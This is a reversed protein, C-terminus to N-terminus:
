AYNPQFNKCVRIPNSGENIFVIENWEELTGEYYVDKITIIDFANEDVFKLSRPLYLKELGSGSFAYRNIRTLNRPTKFIKLAFCDSFASDTIEAISDPLNVETLSSCTMFTPLYRINGYFTAKVLKSFNDLVFYGDNINKFNIIIEETYEKLGRLDMSHIVPGEVNIIFRFLKDTGVGHLFWSNFYNFGGEGYLEITYLSDPINIFLDKIKLTGEVHYYLKELYILNNFAGESVSTLSSPLRISKINMINNDFINGIIATVPKGIIVSPIVVDVEDGTYGTIYIEEENEIYAYKNTVDGYKAKLNINYDYKYTFSIPILDKDIYWGVFNSNDKIPTPLTVYEDFYVEIEENGMSAGDSDLFIKYKGPEYKATLIIPNIVEDSSTFLKDGNYWGLFKYGKKTPIPLDNFMSSDYNYIYKVECEGGSPDFTIDAENNIFIPYIDLDKKVHTFDESWKHFVLKEDDNSVSPATASENYNVKQHNIINLDLDYFTVNFVKITLECYITTDEYIKNNFNFEEDDVYYKYNYGEINPEYKEVTSGKDIMVEIPNFFMNFEYRVIVKDEYPNFISVSKIVSNNIIINSSTNNNNNDIVVILFSFLLVVLSFVSLVISMVSTKKKVEKPEEIVVEENFKKGYYIESLSVNFIESCKKLMFINPVSEENEWKSITQYRTDLQEALSVLSYNNVKRLYTFYKSFESINFENEIDINNNLTSEGNVLSDIDVKLLRALLGILALDPVREGSEWKSVSPISVGLFDAVDKQSLGIEKRRKSIFNGFEIADMYTGRILLLM